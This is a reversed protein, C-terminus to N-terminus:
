KPAEELWLFQLLTYLYLKTQLLVQTVKLGMKPQMLTVLSVVFYNEYFSTQKSTQKVKCM